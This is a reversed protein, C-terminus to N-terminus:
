WVYTEPFCGHKRLFREMGLLDEDGCLKIYDELSIISFLKETQEKTFAYTKESDYEDGYVNSILTLWGNDITGDLSVHDEEYINFKKKNM